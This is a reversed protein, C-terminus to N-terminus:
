RWAKKKQLKKQMNELDEEDFYNEDEEAQAKDIDIEPDCEVYPDPNVKLSLLAIFEAFFRKNMNKNMQYLVFWDGFSCKTVYHKIHKIQQNNYLYHTMTM